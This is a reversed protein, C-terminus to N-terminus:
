KESSQNPLFLRFSYSTENARKEGNERKERGDRNRRRREERERKRQRDTERKQRESERERMSSNFINLDPQFQASFKQKQQQFM